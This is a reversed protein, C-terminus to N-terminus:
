IEPSLSSPRKLTLQNKRVQRWSNSVTSSRWSSVVTRQFRKIFELNFLYIYKEIKYIIIFVQRQDNMDCKNGLIMKEQNFLLYKTLFKFNPNSYESVVDASAHEEIDRIWKKINDFSKNNTIDYLLM